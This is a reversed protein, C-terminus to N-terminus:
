LGDLPDADEDDYWPASAEGFSRQPSEYLLPRPHMDATPNVHMATYPPRTGRQARVDHLRESLKRVEARLADCDGCRTARREEDGRLRQLTQLGRLRESSEELQRRYRECHGCSSADRPTEFVNLPNKTRTTGYLEAARMRRHESQSLVMAGSMRAEREADYVPGQREPAPEPDTEVAVDRTLDPLDLCCSGATSAAHKTEAVRMLCPARAGFGPTACKARQAAWRSSITAVDAPSALVEVGEATPAMPEALEGAPVVASMRMKPVDVAGLADGYFRLAMDGLCTDLAHDASEYRGVVTGVEAVKEPQHFSLFATLRRAIFARRQEGDMLVNAVFDPFLVALLEATVINESGGHENILATVYHEGLGFEMALRRLRPAWAPEPTPLPVNHKAHMARFLEEEAGDYSDLHRDVDHVEAPAYKECFDVLRSRTIARRRAADAKAMDEQTAAVHRAASPAAWPEEDAELAGAAHRPVADELPAEDGFRGALAEMLEDEKGAYKALLPQLSAMRTPDHRQLIRRVREEYSNPDAAKPPAAAPTPAAGAATAGAAALAAAPAPVAEATQQAVPAAVTQLAQPQIVVPAAGSAAEPIPEAGYRKVLAAILDEERGKYKAVTSGASRVRDPDYKQLIAAVRQEHSLAEVPAATPSAIPQAVPTPQASLNPALGVAAAAAAPTATGPAPAAAGTTSDNYRKSLATLLDEERGAYKALTAKVTRVKGPDHKMLLATM